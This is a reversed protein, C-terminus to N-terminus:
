PAASAPEILEVEILEVEILEVFGQLCSQGVPERSRPWGPEVGYRYCRAATPEEGACFLARHYSQFRETTNRVGLLM